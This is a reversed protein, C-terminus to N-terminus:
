HHVTQPFPFSVPQPESGRCTPRSSTAMLVAVLWHCTHQELVLHLIVLGFIDKLFLSIKQELSLHPSSNDYCNLLKFRQTLILGVNQLRSLHNQEKLASTLMNESWNRHSGHDWLHPEPTYDPPWRIRPLNVPCTFGPPSGGGGWAPDLVYMCIVHFLFFLPQSMQM